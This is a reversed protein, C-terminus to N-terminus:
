WSWPESAWGWLCVAVAPVGCPVGYGRRGAGHQGCLPGSRHQGGYQLAAPVHQGGAAAARFVPDTQSPQGADYGDYQKKVTKAEM